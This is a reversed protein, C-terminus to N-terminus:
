GDQGEKDTIKIITPILGNNKKNRFRRALWAGGSATGACLGFLGGTEASVPIVAASIYGLGLYQAFYGLSGAHFMDGLLEERSLTAVLNPDNSELITKTDTLAGQLETLRVPSVSGGVIAISCRRAPALGREVTAM